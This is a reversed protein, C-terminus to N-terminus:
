KNNESCTRVLSFIAYIERLVRAIQDQESLANVFPMLSQDNRDQTPHGKESFLIWFYSFFESTMFLTRLHLVGFTAIFFSLQHRQSLM